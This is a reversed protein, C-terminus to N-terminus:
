TRDVEIIEELGVERGLIAELATLVRAITEFRTQTARGGILDVYIATHSLSTDAALRYGSIDHAKLFDRIKWRVQM